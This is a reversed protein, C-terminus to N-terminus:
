RMMRENLPEFNSSTANHKIKLENETKAVQMQSDPQRDTKNADFARAFKEEMM